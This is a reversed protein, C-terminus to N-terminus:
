NFKFLAGINAWNTKIIGFDATSDGLPSNSSGISSDLTITERLVLNEDYVYATTGYGILVYDGNVNFGNMKYYSTPMTATHLVLNEDYAKIDNFSNSASDSTAGGFFMALKRTSVGLPFYCVKSYPNSATTKVNSNDYFDTKGTSSLSGCFVLYEGVNTGAKSRRYCSSDSISTKVLNASYSQATYSNSSYITGAMCICHHENSACSPEFVAYALSSLQTKSLNNDYALVQDTRSSWSIGSFGGAIIGYGNINMSGGNGAQTPLDSASYEVANRDYAYVKKNPPESSSTRGGAIIIYDKTHTAVAHGHNNTNTTFTSKFKPYYISSFFQRAIGNIGIYGKIVKRAQNEKGIYIKNVKRAENEVGIYMGIAM